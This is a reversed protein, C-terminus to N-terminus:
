RFVYAAGARLANNNNQDGNVGVASSSEMNAGVVVTDGWVAVSQGFQDYAGTNSAKLYRDQAWTGNSRMFVYAAGAHEASSDAQDGNIGTAASDDYSGVALTDGWLSLNRGFYDDYRATSSKLYAQQTWATGSRTFVYAAGSAAASNDAQNGNVGTAASAEDSAGVVLTDGWLRVTNFRDNIDTNSAKVYAQQTWTVGSRAFVYVAGSEFATNSAQNGNVGTAASDENPAGVAVTDGWLSVSASFGDQVGTNSAKLYAQQTWAVGTRTFVYAAGSDLASESNQNGNIGTAASDEGSAGVALTDGWLTLASGFGDGGGANSAKVYAQQSWNTGSRVFVYVAGSHGGEGPAGVALTDGWLAVSIGFVTGAESNSAKLYAQQMWGAGTRVFVYVAGAAEASNDTQDGNIGTSNSSEQPAGVVLTDGWLSVAHGFYDNPDTNSAKLYARQAVDAARVVSLGYSRETGDPATVVIPISTPGLGLAVPPSPIGAAVPAGRVTVGAAALVPRVMVQVHQLWSGVDVSYTGNAPDFLPQFPNSLPGGQYTLELSALADTGRLTRVTYTTAARTRPRVVVVLPTTGVALGMAASTTGSPVDLGGVTLSARGPAFSTPTLAM